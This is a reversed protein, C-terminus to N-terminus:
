KKQLSYIFVQDNYSFEPENFSHLYLEPRTMDSFFVPLATEKYDKSLNINPPLPRYDITLSSHDNGRKSYLIVWDPLETFGYIYRPLIGRNKPFIHPNTLLIRNIFRIKNGLYFTLPEHGRDLSLFATDGEKAHTALYNAVALDPTQYPHIVENIFEFLYSRYPKSLTFISTLLFLILVIVGIYKSRKLIEYIVIASAITFFPLIVMTYRAETFFTIVSSYMTFLLMITIYMVPVLIVFLAAQYNEKEKIMNWVIFGFIPVFVIPLANNENYTSLAQQLMFSFPSILEPIQAINLPILRGQNELPKMIIYWPLCFLATVFSSFIFLLLHKRFYILGVLFLTLVFALFVVYNAYFLMIGSFIFLIRPWINKKNLLLCAYTLLVGSLITLSYYRAQYSFLVLPVSLSLILVTLFAVTKNKTLEFTFFYVIPIILISILVSPLRATFTTEGFLFFSLAILYYQAWPSAHNILDENLVIGNQNGMINVGDWGYPVGHRLISKGFLATEAEDGWLPHMNAGLLVLITFILTPILWPAKM